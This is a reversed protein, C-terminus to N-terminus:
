CLSLLLSQGTSDFFSSRVRSVKNRGFSGVSNLSTSTTSPSFPEVLPSLPSLIGSGASTASSNQLTPSPATLPPSSYPALSHTSFYSNTPQPLPQTSISNSQIGDSTSPTDFSSGDNVRALNLNNERLNREKSEPTFRELPKFNNTNANSTTPFRNSTRVSSATPAHGLLSDYGLSVETTSNNQSFQNTPNYM